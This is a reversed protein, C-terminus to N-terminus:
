NGCYGITIPNEATGVLNELELMDYKLAKDLCIVSGPKIDKGDIHQTKDAVVFTCTSCDINETMNTHIGSITISALSSQEPLAANETAANNVNSPTIIDEESCQVLAIFMAIAVVLKQAVSFIKQMKNM